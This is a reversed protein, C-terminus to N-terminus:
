PDVLKHNMSLIILMNLIMLLTIHSWLKGECYLKFVKRYGWTCYPYTYRDLTLINSEIFSLRRCLWKLVIKWILCVRLSYRFRNAIHEENVRKWTPITDIKKIYGAIRIDQMHSYGGWWFAQNWFVSCFFFWYFLFVVKLDTNFDIEMDGDNNFWLNYIIVKTGHSGMDDFQLLTISIYCTLILCYAVLLDLYYDVNHFM